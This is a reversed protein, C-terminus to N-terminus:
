ARDQQMACALQGLMRVATEREADWPQSATLRLCHDFQRGQSFVAGPLFNCGRARAQELLACADLGEPLEVWLVYGGESGSVRSGVPFHHLVAQILRQLELKLRRRLRRLHADFGGEALFAALVQDMLAPLLEGHVAREARLRLHHRHSAIFGVNFGPGTSCAFSGCYLVRDDRDFAKVPRPRYAGHHLDGLLDCELLPLRHHALLAALAQKDADAWSAGTVRDLVPELICAAPAQTQMLEDLAQVTQSGTLGPPLELVRRGMSVILELTRLSTPGSVVVADGPQSLLRLCLQLSEGEGQTVVIDEASYDCALRSARLALQERLALSGHVLGQALLAPHRRLQRALLRQLAALPLWSPALGLHGLSLVGAQSAALSMLRQRREDLALATAASLVPAPRAVPACAFYGRRARAEILGADELEHLAHTVTALSLGHSACLQRVSPLRSGAPFAGSQLALRLEAALARYLSTPASSM